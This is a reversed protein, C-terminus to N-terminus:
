SVPSASAAYRVSSRPLIFRPQLVAFGEFGDVGFGSTEADAAACDLVVGLVSHEAATLGAAFTPVKEALSEAERQGAVVVDRVNEGM